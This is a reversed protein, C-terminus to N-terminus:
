PVLCPDLARVSLDEHLELGAGSVVRDALVSGFIEFSPPITLEAAGAFLQGAFTVNSEIAIADPSAVYIRLARPRAPDGLQAPERMAFTGGVFLDISAGLDTAITLPVIDVDGDVFVAVHGTAHITLPATGTIASLHYRGCPLTLTQMASLNSTADVALGISANENETAAAAITGALDFPAELPCPCPDSPAVDETVMGGRYIPNTVTITSTGPHRFVGSVDLTDLQIAGAVSVDAGGIVVAEVLSDVLPAYVVIPGTVELRAASGVFSAGAPSVVTFRGTVRTTGALEARDNSLMAGGLNAATPEYPGLRSDFADVLTDGSTTTGYFCSCLGGVFRQGALTSSCTRSAGPLVVPGPCGTSAVVGADSGADSGADIPDGADVPLRRAVLDRETCATMSALVSAVFVARIM